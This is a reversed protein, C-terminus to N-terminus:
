QYIKIDRAEAWVQELPLGNIQAHSICDAASLGKALTEYTYPDVTAIRKLYFCGENFILLYREKKYKFEIEYNDELATQLYEFAFKKAPDENKNSFTKEANKNRFYLYVLMAFAIALLIVAPITLWGNLKLQVDVNSAILYIAIIVTYCFLGAIIKYWKSGSRKLDKMGRYIFIILLAIFPISILIAPLSNQEIQLFAVLVSVILSGIILIYFLAKNSIKRKEM